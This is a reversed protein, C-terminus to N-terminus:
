ALSGDNGPPRSVKDRGQAGQINQQGAPDGAQVQANQNMAVMSPLGSEFYDEIKMKSDLKDLMAQAIKKPKMGPIQLIFPMVRELKGLEAAANPKGSSGAEIELFIEDQIESQALDPWVAGPGVIRQVQELSMEKLLIEGSGRTIESLMDDVEDRHSSLTTAMASEAISSQTATVDPRTAGLQAEAVGLTQEIDQNVHNTQYLNPDVGPTQIPQLLDNVNQGAILGKMPLVAFSPHHRLLDVDQEHLAGDVYAIKPRAFRRHESLGQRSINLERQMPAILQVDSTGYISDHHEIENPALTYIPWFRQLEVNPAKPEELFDVFGPTVTYQLGSPKHYYDYIKVFEYEADDAQQEEDDWIDEVQKEKKFISAGAERLDIGYIESARDPCMAKEEAIWDANVFGKIQTCKPDIKISQATPFDFVLGERIVIQEKERLAQLMLRAEEIEPDGEKVKEGESIDKILKELHRVQTRHDDINSIADTEGVERQFDLKVYGVYNTLMRKIVQKFQTKFDPDAENMFYEFLIEMTKGVQRISNEQTKGQQFDQILAIDNPDPQQGAEEFQQIRALVQEISGPDGDWLSYRLRPKPTAEVKPNQAYLQATRSHVYRQTVNAVYFSAPTMEDRGHRVLFENRGMQEFAPQFLRCSEEIDELIKKVLNKVQDPVDRLDEKTKRDDKKIGLIEPKEDRDDDDRLPQPININERAM